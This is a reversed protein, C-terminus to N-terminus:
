QLIKMQINCSPKQDMADPTVSSRAIKGFPNEDEDVGVSAEYEQTLPNLEPDIGGRGRACLIEDIKMCMEEFKM